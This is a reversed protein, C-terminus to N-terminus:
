KRTQGVTSVQCWVGGGKGLVWVCVIQKPLHSAYRMDTDQHHIAPPPLESAAVSYVKKKRKSYDERIAHRQAAVAGGHQAPRRMIGAGGWQNSPGWWWSGTAPLEKECAWRPNVSWFWDVPKLWGLGILCEPLALSPPPPPLALVTWHDYSM